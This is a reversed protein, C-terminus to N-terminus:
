GHTQPLLNGQRKKRRQWKWVVRDVFFWGFIPYTMLILEIFSRMSLFLAMAGLGYLACGIVGFDQELLQSWTAAAWGVVIGAVIVGAWGFAMYIEGIGTISFTTGPSKLYNALDFGPDVPKGPWLIRPVPRVLIYVLFDFGVYDVEAPIARITEGLMAFNNDVKIGQFDSSSYSVEGYGTRRQALLFDAFVITFAIVVGAVAVYRLQLRRRTSGFWTLMAAGIIVVLLRRAGTQAIFALTILSCLVGVIVDNSKWTNRRVALAVTFTPVVYGFNTLFDRFADWGGLAGRAWPASWRNQFLGDVVTMISFDSAYFYNFMQLSWCILLIRFIVKTPYERTALERVPRPLRPVPLSSGLAVALAFLGVAAFAKKILDAELFVTYFLQLAEGYGIMAIAIMLLHQSKLAGRPGGHVLDNLPGCMMGITLAWAPWFLAGPVNPDNPVLLIALLLGIPITVLSLNISVPKSQRMAITSSSHGRM